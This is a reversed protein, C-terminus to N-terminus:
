DDLDGSDMDEKTLGYEEVCRSENYDELSMSELEPERDVWEDYFEYEDEDKYM